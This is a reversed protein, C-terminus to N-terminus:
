ANQENYLGRLGNADPNLRKAFVNSSVQSQWEVLDLGLDTALLRCVTSKGAGAPGALVLIRNNRNPLRASLAARVEAVKTPNM